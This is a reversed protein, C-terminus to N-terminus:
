ARIGGGTQGLRRTEGLEQSQVIGVAHLVLRRADLARAQEAELV